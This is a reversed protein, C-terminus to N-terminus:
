YLTILFSPIPAASALNGHVGNVSSIILFCAASAQTSGSISAVISWSSLENPVLHSPEFFKLGHFTPCNSLSPVSHTEPYLVISSHTPAAALFRRELISARPIAGFVVPVAESVNQPPVLPACVRAFVIPIVSM